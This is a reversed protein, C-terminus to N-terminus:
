FQLLLWLDVAGLPEDVVWPCITVMISSDDNLGHGATTWLICLINAGEWKWTMGCTRRIWSSCITCAHLNFVYCGNAPNGFGYKAANAMCWYQVLILIVIQRNQMCRNLILMWCLRQSHCITCDHLLNVHARQLDICCKYCWVDFEESKLEMVLSM